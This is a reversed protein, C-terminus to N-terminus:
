GDDSDNPWWGGTAAQGLAASDLADSANLAASDLADATNCPRRIWVDATNCPRCDLGVCVAM